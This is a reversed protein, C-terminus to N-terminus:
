DDGSNIYDDCIFILKEKEAKTLDARENIISKFKEADDDTPMGWRAITETSSEWMFWILAGKFAEYSSNRLDNLFQDTSFASALM